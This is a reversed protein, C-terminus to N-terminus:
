WKLSIKGHFVERSDKEDEEKGKEEETFTM